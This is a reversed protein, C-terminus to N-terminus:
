TNDIAHFSEGVLKGLLIERKIDVDIAELKSEDYINSNGMNDIKHSLRNFLDDINVSDKVPEKNLHTVEHIPKQRVSNTQEFYIRKMKLPKVSM